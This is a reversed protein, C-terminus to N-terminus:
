SSTKYVPYVGIIHVHMYEGKSEANLLGWYDREDVDKYIYVNGKKYAVILESTTANYGLERIMTSQVSIMKPLMMM